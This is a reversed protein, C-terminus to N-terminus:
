KLIEWIRWKITSFLVSLGHLIPNMTSNDTLKKHYICTVPVGVVKYNYKRARILFETICGFGAEKTKIERAVESTFARFGCQADDLKFNAGLNYALKIVDNGFKRYRPMAEHSRRIGVVISTKKELLPKLLIPIEAPNHQGDGDLTVIFDPNCELAWAIGTSTASGMGKKECSLALANGKIAAVSTADRSMNDVVIVMDVHKYCGEVVAKITKAEDFCPIVAIIKNGM